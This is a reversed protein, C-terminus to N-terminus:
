APPPALVFECRGTKLPVFPLGSRLTWADLAREVAGVDDARVVLRHGGDALRGELGQAAFSELVDPGDVSRTLEVGVIMSDGNTPAEAGAVDSRAPDAEEARRTALFQIGDMRIGGIMVVM